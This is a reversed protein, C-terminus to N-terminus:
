NYKFDHCTKWHQHARLFDVQHLASLQLHQCIKITATYCRDQDLLESLNVFIQNLDCDQMRSQDSFDSIWHSNLVYKKVLHFFAGSEFQCNQHQEYYQKMSLSNNTACHSRIELKNNNFNFHKYWLARHYWKQSEQDLVISVIAHHRYYEPVFIKHWVVPIYLDQDVCQWFYDTAHQRCLELFQQHRLDNGRDYTNSVFHLNWADNPKPEVEIWKHLKSQFKSTFWTYHNAFNKNNQVDHDFHAISPHAMLCSVLFKGAAGHPYRIVLFKPQKM